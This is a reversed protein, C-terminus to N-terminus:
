KNSRFNNKPVGHPLSCILTRCRSVLNPINHNPNLLAAEGTNLGLVSQFSPVVMTLFRNGISLCRKYLSQERKTIM